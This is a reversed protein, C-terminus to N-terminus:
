WFLIWQGALLRVRIWILRALQAVLPSVAAAAALPLLAAGVLGAVYSPRLQQRYLQSVGKADVLIHGVKMRVLLTSGMGARGKDLFDQVSSHLGVAVILAAGLQHALLVAVDESTGPAPLVAAQLGLREVRALGPARGDRYAHVVLEAGCALARDSVSDMDGVIVQPRYGNELLADAGGDVGILVPRVERIYPRIARLDEQYGPGRVVVLVHRGRMRARLAPLPLPALILPTERRAYDVSNEVFRELEGTFSEAARRLAEEVQRRDLRRGRAVVQGGCLLCDEELEVTEGERVAELVELGVADLVPVGAELLYLPGAHPYRGSLSSCGNVVARVRANVLARAAVEDLDQHAIVAIENPRLRRVLDKTRSDVRAVGRVRM